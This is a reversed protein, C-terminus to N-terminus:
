PQSNLWDKLHNPLDSLQEAGFVRVKGKTDWSEEIERQVAYPNRTPDNAPACCVLGIRAEDGGIQRARVYAEFLHEKAKEKNDTAICSIAFLQYGRVVAVDFELSRGQPGSAKLNAGYDDFLDSQQSRAELCAWLVYQELWEGLFWKRCQDLDSWQPNLAHAIQQPTGLNNLENVVNQLLPYQRLDPPSLPSRNKLWQRWQQFGQADAHIKAIAKCLNPQVPQQPLPPELNYGHLALMDTLSLTVARSVPITPKISEIVLSLTKADLYSFVADPCHERIARYAYIAMTKTGGTYNLGVGRKGSAHQEVEELISKTDTEEVLVKTVRDSINLMEILRNAVDNTEATHVLYLHGDPKLLLKAAVYNPLPNTGVLLFLHDSQPLQMSSM